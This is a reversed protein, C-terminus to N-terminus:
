TLFLVTKRQIEEWVFYSWPKMIYCGSVDYYELMDGKQLVQQYWGPFDVDKHVTIGILAAGEVAAKSPDPKPKPKQKDKPPKQSKEKPKSVDEKISMNKMQDADLAM